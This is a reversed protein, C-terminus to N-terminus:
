AAEAEVEAVEEVEEVDVIQAAAAAAARAADERVVDLIAPGYREAKVPGIGRVDLLAAPTTPRARALATMTREPLVMFPRCGDAAAAGDRWARIAAYTEREAEDLPGGPLAAADARARAALRARDRLLLGRLPDSRAHNAAAGLAHAHSGGRSAAAMPVLGHAANHALQLARRRDTEAIADAMARSAVAGRAYLVALGDVHRAARGITQVLSTASRLFGMRDADVVAVLSM